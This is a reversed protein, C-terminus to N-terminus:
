TNMKFLSLFLPIGNTPLTSPFIANPLGEAGFDETPPLRKNLPAALELRLTGFSTSKLFSVPSKVISHNWYAVVTPFENGRRNEIPDKEPWDIATDCSPESEERM